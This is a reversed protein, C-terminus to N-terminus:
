KIVTRAIVVAEQNCYFIEILPCISNFACNIIAKNWVYHEINPEERFAFHQTNIHSVIEGLKENKNHISGVPSATVGKFRVVGNDIIQGATFLVCRFVNEFTEFPKEINLGNQLLM